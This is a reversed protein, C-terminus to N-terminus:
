NKRSFDECGPCVPVLQSFPIKLARQHFFSQYGILVKQTVRRAKCHKQPHWKISCWGFSTSIKSAKCISLGLHTEQTQFLSNVIWLLCPAELGQTWFSNIGDLPAGYGRVLGSHVCWRCWCKAVWGLLCSNALMVCRRPYSHHYLLSM